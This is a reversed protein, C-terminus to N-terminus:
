FVQFFLNLFTLGVGSLLPIALNDDINISILEAVAGVVGGFFAFPLLQSFAETHLVGYSLAVVYCTCFGAVSGELSKNQLIKHQGFLIGVLSSIPDAFILFMISILAIHKQFMFLSLSVGLAYFPLGSYGNIESNRLFPSGVKLFIRNLDPWRLRFFDIGIGLVAIILTAYAFFRTSEFLHFYSYLGLLGTGMHWLKRSLHLDSRVALEQASATDFNSTLEVEAM